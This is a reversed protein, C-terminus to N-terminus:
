IITEPLELLSVDRIFGKTDPFYIKNSQVINKPSVYSLIIKAIRAHHVHKFEALNKGM